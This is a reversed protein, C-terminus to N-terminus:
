FRQSTRGARGAGVWGRTPASRRKLNKLHYIYEARYVALWLFNALGGMTPRPGQRIAALGQLSAESM